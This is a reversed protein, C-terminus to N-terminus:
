HADNGDGKDLEAVDAAARLSAVVETQSSHDSWDFIRVRPQTSTHYLYQGSSYIRTLHDDLLCIPGMIEPKELFHCLGEHRTKYEPVLGAAVIIAGVTCAACGELPDESMDRRAFFVGTAKGEAEIHNAAKRLTEAHKNM